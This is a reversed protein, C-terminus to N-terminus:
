CVTTQFDLLWSSHRCPGGMKRRGPCVYLPSSLYALLQNYVCLTDCVRVLVLTVVCCRVSACACYYGPLVYRHVDWSGGECGMECIFVPCVQANLYGKVITAFELPSVTSAVGPFAPHASTFVTLTAVGKVHKVREKFSLQYLFAMDSLGALLLGQKLFFERRTVGRSLVAAYRLIQRRM